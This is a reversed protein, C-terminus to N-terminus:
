HVTAADNVTPTETTTTTKAQGPDDDDNDNDHDNETPPFTLETNQSLKDGAQTGSSPQSEGFGSDVLESIIIPQDFKYYEPAQNIQDANIQQLYIPVSINQYYPVIPTSVRIEPDADNMQSTSPDNSALTNGEEEAVTDVQENTLEGPGIFLMEDYPNQFAVERPSDATPSQPNPPPTVPPERHYDDRRTFSPSEMSSARDAPENSATMRQKQRSSEYEIRELAVMRQLKDQLVLARLKPMDRLQAALNLGFYQFEDQIPPSVSARINDLKNLASTIHPPVNEDSTAKPKVSSLASRRKRKKPTALRKLLDAPDDGSESSSISQYLQYDRVEPEILLDEVSKKSQKCTSKEPINSYSERAECVSLFEHATKYWSLRTHYVDATGAGSKKSSSMKNKEINYTDRVVKIRRKVEDVSELDMAARITELAALRKQKNKYLEHSYNWLLEHERYLGLLHVIEDSSMRKKRIAM